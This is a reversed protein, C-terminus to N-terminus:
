LSKESIVINVHKNFTNWLVFYTLVKSEVEKVQIM